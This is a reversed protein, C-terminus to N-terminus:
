KGCSTLTEESIVAGNVKFSLRVPSGTVYAVEVSVDKRMGGRLPIELHVNKDAETVIAVPNEGSADWGPKVAFNVGPIEITAKTLEPRGAIQGFQLRMGMGEPTMIPYVDFSSLRESGSSPRQRYRFDESLCKLSGDPIGTRVPEVVGSVAYIYGVFARSLVSTRELLKREYAYHAEHSVLAARNVSDLSNWIETDIEVRNPTEDHFIALQELACGDPIRPTEGLDKLVPLKVGPATMQAIDFFRRLSENINEREKEALGLAGQLRYTNAAALFYDQQVSGTPQVLPFRLVTRAEYLDLLEAYSIKGEPTRCVLAAGGGSSSPGDAPASFAMSAVLTAAAASLNKLLQKKM